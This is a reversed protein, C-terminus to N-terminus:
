ERVTRSPGTNEEEELSYAMLLPLLTVSRLGGNKADNRKKVPRRVARFLTNNSDKDGRAM